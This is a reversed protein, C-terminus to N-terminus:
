AFTLGTYGLKQDVSPALHLDQQGQQIQGLADQYLYVRPKPLVNQGLCPNPLKM